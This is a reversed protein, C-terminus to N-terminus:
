GGAVAEKRVERESENRARELWVTRSIPMLAVLSRSSLTTNPTHVLPYLDSVSSLCHPVDLRVEAGLRKLYVGEVIKQHGM